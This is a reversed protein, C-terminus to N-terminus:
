KKLRYCKTITGPYIRDMQQKTRKNAKPNKGEKSTFTGDGNSVATHEVGGRRNYYVIIEGKKMGERWQYEDWGAALIFPVGAGDPSYINDDFTLGHCWYKINNWQEKVRRPAYEPPDKPFIWVKIKSVKKRGITVEKELDVEYGHACIGTSPHDGWPYWIIPIEVEEGNELKGKKVCRKLTSWKIGKGDKPVVVGTGGQAVLFSVSNLSLFLTLSISYVVNRM